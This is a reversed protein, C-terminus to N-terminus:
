PKETLPASNFLFHTARPNSADLRDDSEYLRLEAESPLAISEATLRARAAHWGRRVEDPDYTREIYKRVAHPLSLFLYHRM